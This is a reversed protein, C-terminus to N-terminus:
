DTLFRNSHPKGRGFYVARGTKGKELALVHGRACETADVLNLGTDVYAPFKKKLFDVVIRGTPTPKLAREGIPTTPNVMVVDVGARAAEFAVQEAPHIEVAQLARDNGCAVGSQKRGGVTGNSGFGM